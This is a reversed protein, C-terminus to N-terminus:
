TTKAEENNVIVTVVKSTKTTGDAWTGKLQLEYKGNDVKTTDWKATFPEATVVVISKGDVLFDVSEIGEKHEIGAQIEVTGSVEQGEEVGMIVINSVIVIVAKSTKTSGDGRTARIQIEHQGNDVQTTDWQITFPETTDTGISDGDMLLDASKFEGKEPIDVQIQVIGFVEQGDEVGMIWIPCAYVSASAVTLIAMVTVAITVSLRSQMALVMREM